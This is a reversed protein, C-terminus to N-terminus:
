LARGRTASGHREPSAAEKLVASDFQNGTVVFCYDM